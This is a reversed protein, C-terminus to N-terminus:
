GTLVRTVASLRAILIDSSRSYGDLELSTEGRAMDTSTAVVNFLTQGDRGSGTVLDLPLEPILVNSGARIHCAPRHGGAVATVRANAPLTVRGRVSPLLGHDDAIRQALQASSNATMPVPASLIEDKRKGQTVFPNRQSTSVASAENPFGTAADGYVIYATRVLNDVSSTLHLGTLVDLRLVWHPEDLSADKWDFRGDEWIQWRRSFYSTVEQLVSSARDRDARALQPIAFSTDTDITGVTIGEVQGILDTLITAAYMGGATDEVTTAGLIRINDVEIAVNAGAVGSSFYAVFRLYKVDAGLTVDATTTSVNSPAVDYRSTWTVGDPSDYVAINVPDSGVKIHDFLLKLMPAETFYWAGHGYGVSAAANTQASFKLGARTLDTDDFRGITSWGWVDPRFTKGTGTLGNVLQWPISRHIWIRRLSTEELLRQLGFSTVQIQRGLVNHGHDELRGEWLLTPGDFLRVTSLKPLDRVSRIRKGDVPVSFSCSGFGGNAVTAFSVSDAIPTIELPQTGDPIVVATLQLRPPSGFGTLLGM